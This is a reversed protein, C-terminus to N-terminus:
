PAAKVTLIRSATTQAEDSVLVHYRGPAVAVSITQGPLSSGVYRGELFWDLRGTGSEAEAMLAVNAQGGSALSAYFM